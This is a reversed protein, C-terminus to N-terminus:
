RGLIISKTDQELIHSQNASAFVPHAARLAPGLHVYRRFGANSLQTLFLSKDM